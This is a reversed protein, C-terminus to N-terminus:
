GEGEVGEQRGGWCHVVERGLSQLPPLVTKSVRQSSISPAAGRGTGERTVPVESPAPPMPWGAQIHKIKRSSMPAEPQSVGM